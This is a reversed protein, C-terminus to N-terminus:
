PDLRGSLLGRLFKNVEEAVRIMGRGDIGAAAPVPLDAAGNCLRNIEMGVQKMDMGGDYGLNVVANKKAFWEAERVLNREQPFIIAPCGSALAEYVIMGGTMLAMAHRSLIRALQAQRINQLLDIHLKKCKKQLDKVDAFTGGVVMTIRDCGSQLFPSQDGTLLNAWQGARDGGGIIIALSKDAAAHHAVEGFLPNLLAYAAGCFVRSKGCLLPYHHYDDLVTGNFILEAQVPGGYDDIAVVPFPSDAYAQWSERNQGPQDILLIDAHIKRAIELFDAPSDEGMRHLTVEDDFLLGLQDGAGCIHIDLPVTIHQLLGAVRAAHGLGTRHSADLRILLRIQDALDAM